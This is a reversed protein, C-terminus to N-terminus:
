VLVFFVPSHDYRRAGHFDQHIQQRARVGLQQLRAGLRERIQEFGRLALDLRHTAKTNTTPSKIKPTKNTTRVHTVKHQLEVVRTRRAQNTNRRALSSPTHKTEDVLAQNKNRRPGQAARLSGKKEEKSNTGSNLVVASAM